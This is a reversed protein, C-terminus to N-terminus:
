RASWAVHLGGSVAKSGSMGMSWQLRVLADVSAGPATNTTIRELEQRHAAMFGDRSEQAERTAWWSTGQAVTAM